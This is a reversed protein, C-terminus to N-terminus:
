EDISNEDTLEGVYRLRRGAMQGGPSSRLLVDLEVVRNGLVDALRIRVDAFTGM